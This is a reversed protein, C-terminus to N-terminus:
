VILTKDINIQYAKNYCFLTFYNLNIRNNLDEFDKEEINTLEYFNSHIKYLDSLILETIKIQAKKINLKAYQTFMPVMIIGGGLGSLASIIGTFLGVFPFKATKVDKIDLNGSKKSKIFRYLMFVLLIIFFISFTDKSYWSGKAIFYTLGLSTPIALLSVLLIQRPYFSNLKYQKYSSIAGAFFTAAFSNALIYKALDPDELGISVLVTSIVPVFVIGGGVGLLGSLFGGLLGFIVM